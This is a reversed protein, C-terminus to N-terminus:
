SLVCRFKYATVRENGVSIFTDGEYKLAFSVGTTNAAWTLACTENAPVVYTNTSKTGGLADASLVVECGPLLKVMTFVKGAEISFKRPDDTLGKWGEITPIPSEYVMWFDDSALTATAPTTVVYADKQGATTSKAGLAVVFGNQLAVTAHVGTKVLSGINEAAASSLILIGNAM